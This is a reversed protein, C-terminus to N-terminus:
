VREYLLAASWLPTSLRRGAIAVIRHWTRGSRGDPLSYAGGQVTRDVRVGTGIKALTRVNAHARSPSSRLLVDTRITRHTSTTPAPKPPKPPKPPPPANDGIWKAISRACADGYKDPANGDAAPAWVFPLRQITDTRVGPRIRNLGYIRLLRACDRAGATWTPYRVFGDHRPYNASTTRANGWSRNGTARGTRGFGSEHEFIALMVAPDVGVAVAAAYCSAASAAAPSGARALIRAFTAASIRPKHLISYDPTTAM